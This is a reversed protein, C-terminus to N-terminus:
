QKYGPLFSAPVLEGRNLMGVAEGVIKDKLPKPLARTEPLALILDFRMGPERLRSRVLEYNQQQEETPRSEDIATSPRLPPADKVINPAAVIADPTVGTALSRFPLRTSPSLHNAPVEATDHDPKIASELKQIDRGIELMYVALAGCAGGVLFVLSFRTILKM